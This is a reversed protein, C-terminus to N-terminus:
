QGRRCEALEGRKGDLVGEFLGYRGGLRARLSLGNVADLKGFRRQLQRIDIIANDTDM